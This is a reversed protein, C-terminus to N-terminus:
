RTAGFSGRDITTAAGIEVDSEIEVYGLQAARRHEGDVFEYGFGYAGIVAGAHIIVRDGIVTGEYLVVHPFLTVHAGVRCGAMVVVHPHIVSGSGIEVHDEIVAGAHVQVDPALRAHPSIHAAPSVGTSRVTRPPRFFLVVQGFADRVRAARIVPIGPDEAGVPIIAAAA